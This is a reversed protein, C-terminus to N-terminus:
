HISWTDAAPAARCPASKAAMRASPRLAWQVRVVSVPGKVVHLCEDVASPRLGGCDVSLHQDAEIATAAFLDPNRQLVKLPTPEDVNTAPEDVLGAM